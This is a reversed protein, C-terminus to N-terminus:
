IPTPLNAQERITFVGATSNTRKIEEFNRMWLELMLLRWLWHSNDRRGKDHERLVTLLFPESVINRDLFTRSTLVDWLLTRLSTRFWLALPVGFGKKPLKLLEAPLRHGVAKLLIQKGRGNRMNWHYPISMAFEALEHDLLPSRVELSNAMSMRDVKVLM